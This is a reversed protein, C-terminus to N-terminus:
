FIGFGRNGLGQLEKKQFSNNIEIGDIQPLKPLKVGKKVGKKLQNLFSGTKHFGDNEFL